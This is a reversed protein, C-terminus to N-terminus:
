RITRKTTHKMSAAERTRRALCREFIAAEVHVVMLRVAGTVIMAQIAAQAAFAFRADLAITTLRISAIAKVRFAEAALICGLIACTVCRERVVVNNATLAKALTVCFFYRSSQGFCSLLLEVQARLLTHRHKVTESLAQIGRGVSQQGLYGARRVQIPVVIFDSVLM